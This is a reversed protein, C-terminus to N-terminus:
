RLAETAGRKPQVEESEAATELWFDIASISELDVPSGKTTVFIGYERVVFRVEPNLDEIVQIAAVFHDAEVIVTIPIDRCAYEVIMESRLEEKFYDIVGQLPTDIFDLQVPRELAQLIKEVIPGRPVRRVASRSTPALKGASDETSDALVQRIESELAAVKSQAEIAPEAPGVGTRHLSNALEFAQTERSWNNWLAIQERAVQFRTLKLEAEALRVKSRAAVIQPHAALTRALLQELSPIPQKDAAAARAPGAPPAVKVGAGFQAAAWNGSILVVALAVPFLRLSIPTLDAKTITM